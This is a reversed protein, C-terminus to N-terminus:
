IRFYGETWTVVRNALTEPALEADSLNEEIVPALCDPMMCSSPEQVFISGGKERVYRLGELNSTEAGSLLIVLLRDQFVDAASFLFLDFYGPGYEFDHQGQLSQIKVTDETAQLLLSRRQSDLYFNGGQLPTDNAVPAVPHHCMQSLHASMAPLFTVPISHLSVFAAEDSAPIGTFLHYLTAHGNGGSSIIVLQKAPTSDNGTPMRTPTKCIKPTRFRQFASIRATASRRIREVIKQQQLLFDGGRVPKSIFDVAGLDLLSLVTEPARSGVNSM